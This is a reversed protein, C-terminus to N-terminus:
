NTTNKLTRMSTIDYPIKIQSIERLMIGQLDMWVSAFPLVDDKEIASYYEVSHIYVM